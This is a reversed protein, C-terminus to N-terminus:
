LRLDSQLGASKAKLLLIALSLSSLKVRCDFPNSAAIFSSDRLCRLRVVVQRLGKLLLSPALSLASSVFLSFLNDGAELRYFLLCM